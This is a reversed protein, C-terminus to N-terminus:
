RTPSPPPPTHIYSHTSTYFRPSEVPTSIVERWRRIYISLRVDRIVVTCRRQQPFCTQACLLLIIFLLVQKKGKLELCRESCDNSEKSHEDPSYLVDNVLNVFCFFFLLLFLLFVSVSDTEVNIPIRSVREQAFVCSLNVSCKKILRVLCFAYM